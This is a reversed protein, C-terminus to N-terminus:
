KSKKLAVGSITVNVAAVKVGVTAEVASMVAKQVEAGVESVSYGLVTLIYIDITVDDGGITLKVGKSLGKKGV